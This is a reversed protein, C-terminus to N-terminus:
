RGVSRSPRRARSRYRPRATGACVTAIRGPALPDRDSVFGSAGRPTCLECGAEGPLRTTGHQRPMEHQSDLPTDTPDSFPNRSGAGRNSGGNSAHGARALSRPGSAIGTRHRFRTSRPATERPAPDTPNRRTTRDECATFTRCLSSYLVAALSNAPFASREASSTSSPRRGAPCNPAKASGATTAATRVSAPAPRSGPRSSPLAVRVLTSTIMASGPRASTHAPYSRPVRCKASAARMTRPREPHRNAANRAHQLGDPRQPLLLITQDGRIRNAGPKFGADRPM